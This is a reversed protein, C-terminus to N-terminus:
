FIAWKDNIYTEDNTITAPAPKVFYYELLAGRLNSGNLTSRSGNFMPASADSDISGSPTFSQDLADAGNVRMHTPDGSTGDWVFVMVAGGHAIADTTVADYNTTSFNHVFEIRYPGGVSGQGGRFRWGTEGPDDLDFGKSLMQTSTQSDDMHLALVLMKDGSGDWFDDIANDAASLGVTGSAPDGFDVGPLSNEKPDILHPNDAGGSVTAAVGGVVQDAWQTIDPPTGLTIGADARRWLKLASGHKAPTFTGLVGGVVRVIRSM